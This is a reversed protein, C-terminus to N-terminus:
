PNQLKTADGSKGTLADYRIAVFTQKKLTDVYRRVGGRQALDSRVATKLEQLTQPGGEDATLLRAVVFKPVDPRLSSGPIQFSVVDGAKATGFGKQYSAPLSDRVWPTLLSTEEKGAYDHFKKALTDFSVGNRMRDAVSDALRATRAVDSSDIAPVILIQHSKVEGTQARDVRVIHFGRSTEFVASLQGPALPALFPGGFLWRDFEPGSDGRRAWGLDGGSEKTLPDMSEHRATQEFDAGAKLRVLLSEARVRAAEKAAASPQVAMVIQRFTVTPPKPPLFEKSREFEAAVEADSVQMPVIKGDQKLKSVVKELLYRRKYQDLMFKRYEDPTGLSAQALATRYESETTFKSRTERVQRDVMSSVDADTVEIKLDAAKQILLEEQIMDDLTELELTREASDNAPKPVEGRQVRGLARERLDIMTITQDGVVAVVGDLLVSQQQAQAAPRTAPVPQQSAVPGAAFLALSAFAAIRKM